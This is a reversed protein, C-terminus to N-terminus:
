LRNRLPFVINPKIISAPLLVRGLRGNEATGSCVVQRNLGDFILKDYIEVGCSHSIRGCLGRVGQPDLCVTVKDKSLVELSLGPCGHLPRSPLSASSTLRFPSILRHMSSAMEVAQKVAQMSQHQGHKGAGNRRHGFRMGESRSLLSCHASDFSHKTWIPQALNSYATWHCCLPTLIAPMGIRPIQAPSGSM